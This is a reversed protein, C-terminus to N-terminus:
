LPNIRLHNPVDATPTSHIRGVPGALRSDLRNANRAYCAWVTATATALKTQQVRERRSRVRHHPTPFRYERAEKVVAFPYAILGSWTDVLDAASAIGPRRAALLIDNRTRM